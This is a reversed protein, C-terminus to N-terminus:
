SLASLSRVFQFENGIDIKINGIVCVSFKLNEVSPIKFKLHNCINTWYNYFQIDAALKYYNNLKAEIYNGWDPKKEEIELFTLKYMSSEKDVQVLLADPILYGFDHFLLTYYHKLRFAEIFVNTNHLENSYGIGQSQAPLIETNFGVEKLIPLVKNSACYIDKQPSFFYGLDCLKQLNRDTCIKNFSVKIKSYQRRHVYKCLRTYYFILWLSNWTARAKFPILPALEDVKVVKRNEIIM